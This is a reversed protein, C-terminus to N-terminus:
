PRARGKALAQFCKRRPRAHQGVGPKTDGVSASRAIRPYSEQMRALTAAIDDVEIGFHDLQAPHGALRPHINLGVRGDGIRVSELPNRASAPRMHFFGEYFRGVTYNNESVITLHNITATM